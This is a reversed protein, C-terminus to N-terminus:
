LRLRWSCAASVLSGRSERLLLVTAIVILTLGVVILIAFVWRWRASGVSYPGGDAARAMPLSRERFM